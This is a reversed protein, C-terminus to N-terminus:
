EVLGFARAIAWGLVPLDAPIFFLITPDGPPYAQYRFLEESARTM